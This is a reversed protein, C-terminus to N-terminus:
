KWQKSRTFAATFGMFSIYVSHMIDMLPLFGKLNAVQLKKMVPFCVLMQVLFRLLFGGLVVPWYATQLVLLLIATLYFFITSLAQLSLMRKHKGRYLKGAGFHRRKQRQYAKFTTKPNSWVMADPHISIATNHRTANQNVFLDDDGSLTHMHSAFGKGKFFLSKTYALNRGVGMYPNKKLAYSLYNLATQYTEYRIYRNLMGPKSLYPSYGLVIEVGPRFEQALYRLWQKSQPYCDADTFILHEYKAGKIGLTLAFKKGHKYDAHETIDVTRLHPYREKYAKLVWNSDDESCDNVVIVEYEPYDQALIETLYTRLNNEENRACIIVSVPPLKAQEDLAKPKFNRLATYVFLQYYLQLLLFLCFIGPLIYTMYQELAFLYRKAFM